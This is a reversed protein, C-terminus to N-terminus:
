SIFYGLRAVVLACLLIIWEIKAAASNAQASFHKSLLIALPAGILPSLPTGAAGCFMLFLTCNLLVNICQLKDAHAEAIGTRRLGSVIQTMARLVIIITCLVLFIYSLHNAFLGFSFKTMEGYFAHLFEGVDDFCMYRFSLFLIYPTLMGGIAKLLKRLGDQMDTFVLLLAIPIVWIVPAFFLSALSVLFFGIYYQEGRLVYFQVWVLCLAALYISNFCVARPDTFIISSSLLVAVIRERETNLVPYSVIYVSVFLLTACLLGLAIGWGTYSTVAEIDCYGSLIPVWGGSYSGASVFFGSVFIFLAALLLGFTRLNGIEARGQM